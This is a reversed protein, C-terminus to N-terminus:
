ATRRAGILLKDRNKTSFIVHILVFSLSQGM